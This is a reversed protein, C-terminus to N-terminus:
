RKMRMTSSKIVVSVAPMMGEFAARFISGLANMLKSYLWLGICTLEKMRESLGQVSEARASERVVTGVRVSEGLLILRRLLGLPLIMFIM